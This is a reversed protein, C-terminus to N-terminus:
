RTALMVKASTSAGVSVTLPQPGSGLGAPVRINIQYLGVFTPALGSFLVEANRSAVTVTVPSSTQYLTGVGAAQGSPPQPPNTPGLGTAFVSLIDGAQAPRSATVLGGDQFIVAGSGSGDFIQFVGPDTNMVEIPRANSRTSGMVLSLQASGLPAEVALQFNVQRQSNYFTPCTYDVGGSTVVVKAANLSAPLPLSPANAPNDHSMGWGWLTYISGRAAMSGSAFSAGNTATYLYPQHRDAWPEFSSAYSGQFKRTINGDTVTFPNRSGNLKVALVHHFWTASVQPDASALRLTAPLFQGWEPGNALIFVYDEWWNDIGNIVTVWTTDGLAPDDLNCDSAGDPAWCGRAKYLGNPKGRFNPGFLTPFTSSVVQEDDNRIEVKINGDSRLNNVGNARQVVGFVYTACKDSYVPVSGLFIQNGQADKIGSACIANFSFFTGDPGNFFTTPTSNVWVSPLKGAFPPFVRDLLNLNETFNGLRPLNAELMTDLPRYNGGSLKELVGAGPSYSAGDYFSKAGGSAMAKANRELGSMPIASYEVWEPHTQRGFWMTTSAASDALSEALFGEILGGCPRLHRTEHTLARGFPSSVAESDGIFSNQPILITNACLARDYTDETNIRINLTAINPLLVHKGMEGVIVVDLWKQFNFRGQFVPDVNLTIQAGAKSPLSLLLAAAFVFTLFVKGFTM